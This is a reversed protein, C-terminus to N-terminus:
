FLDPLNGPLPYTKKPDYDYLFSLDSTRLVIDDPLSETYAYLLASISTGCVIDGSAILKRVNALPVWEM